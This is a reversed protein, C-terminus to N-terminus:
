DILQRMISLSDFILLFDRPGPDISTDSTYNNKLLVFLRLYFSYIVVYLLSKDDTGSHRIGCSLCTM